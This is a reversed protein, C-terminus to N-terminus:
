TWQRMRDRLIEAEVKDYMHTLLKQEGAEKSAIGKELINGQNPTAVRARDRRAERQLLWNRPRVVNRRRNLNKM